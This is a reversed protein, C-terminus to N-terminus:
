SAKKTGYMAVSQIQELLWASAEDMGDESVIDWSQWLTCHKEQLWEKILAQNISVDQTETLVEDM